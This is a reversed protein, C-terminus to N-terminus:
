AMPVGFTNKKQDMQALVSSDARYQIIYNWLLLLVSAVILMMNWFYGAVDGLAGIEGIGPQANRVNPIAFLMAVSFAITPPEVKRKRVWVGVALTFLSLSLLWMIIIVVISYGIVMRSRKIHISALLASGGGSPSYTFTTRFSFLQLASYTLAAIPITNNITASAEMYFHARYDDVPYNTPMGELIPIPIEQRSLMAGAKFSNEKDGLTLNFPFPTRTEIFDDENFEQGTFFKEIGAVTFLYATAAIKTSYARPDVASVYYDILLAVDDPQNGQTLARWQDVTVSSTLATSKREGDAKHVVISVSVAIVLITAVLAAVLLGTRALNNLRPLM